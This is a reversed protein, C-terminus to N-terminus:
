RQGLRFPNLSPLMRNLAEQSRKCRGCNTKGLVRAFPKAIVAVADGLGFKKRVEPNQHVGPPPGERVKRRAANADTSSVPSTTSGSVTRIPM